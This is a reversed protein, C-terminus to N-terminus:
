AAPESRRTFSLFFRPDYVTMYLLLCFICTTIMLM